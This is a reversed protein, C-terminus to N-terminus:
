QNYDDELLSVADEALKLAMTINVSNSGNHVVSNRIPLIDRLLSQLYGNFQLREIAKRPSFRDSPFRNRYQKKLMNEITLWKNMFKEYDSSTQNPIGGALYRKLDDCIDKIPDSTVSDPYLEKETLCHEKLGESLTWFDPSGIHIKFKAIVRRNFDMREHKPNERSMEDEGLLFGEQYHPRLACSPIVNLLRVITMYHESNITIRGTYYPIGIVYIWAYGDKSGLSAFSCAVRLSQSVDLLPTPTVEYHQLIGWQVLRRNKLFNFEENKSNPLEKVRDVLLKSSFDLADWRREIEAPDPISQRYISPYLTSDNSSVKKRDITHSRLERYDNVQGRYFFIIDPNLCSLEAIHKRLDMYSEVTIGNSSLINKSSVGHQAFVDTLKPYVKRM